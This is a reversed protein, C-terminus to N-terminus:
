VRGGQEEPNRLQVIARNHVALDEASIRIFGSIGELPLFVAATQTKVM